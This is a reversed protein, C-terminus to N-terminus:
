KSSLSRRLTLLGSSWGLRVASCGSAKRGLEEELADLYADTGPTDLRGDPDRTTYRAVRERHSPADRMLVAHAEGNLLLCGGGPGARAAQVQAAYAPRLYALPTTLHAHTGGHPERQVSAAYPTAPRALEELACGIVQRALEVLEPCKLPLSDLTDLRVRLLVLPGYAAHLTNLDRLRAAHSRTVSPPWGDHTALYATLLPRRQQQQPTLTLPQHKRGRRALKDRREGEHLVARIRLVNTTRQKLTPTRPRQSRPTPPQRRPTDSARM